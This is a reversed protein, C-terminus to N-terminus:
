SSTLKRLIEPQSLMTTGREKEFKIADKYMQEYWEFSMTVDVAPNITNVLLPAVSRIRETEIINNITGIQDTIKAVERRLLRRYAKELALHSMKMFYSKDIGKIDYGLTIGVVVVSTKNEKAKKITRELKKLANKAVTVYWAPTQTHPAEIQERFKKSTAYLRNFEEELLDDTDYCRIKTSINLNKCLWTKGSGPVGRVHVYFRRSM